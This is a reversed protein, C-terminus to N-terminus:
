HWQWNCGARTARNNCLREEDEWQNSTIHIIKDQTGGDVQLAWWHPSPVHTKLLFWYLRCVSEKQNSQGNGCIFHHQQYTRKLTVMWALGGCMSDQLHSWRSLAQIAKTHNMWWKALGNPPVVVRSGKLLCGDEVSLDHRECSLGRWDDIFLVLQKHEFVM